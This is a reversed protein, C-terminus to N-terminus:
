RTPLIPTSILRTVRSQAVRIVQSAFHTTPPTYFLSINSQGPGGPGIWVGFQVLTDLPNVVAFLYGGALVSCFFDCIM